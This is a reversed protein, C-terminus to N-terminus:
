EADCEGTGATEGAGPDWPFPRAQKIYLTATGPTAKDDFKFEVDMGYWDGDDGYVPMFRSHIADLAAGLAHTQTSDLVTTGADILTSHTIYTIPEGPMSYYQLYADPLVGLDPQVVENDESQVNVYFAPELGSTDFINQTIAVGNAEEQDFNPTTLLAMDCAHQDISYYGREEYARPNWINLWAEKIAWEVSEDEGSPVDLDGTQSNYLGAGTFTGLDEANTSSRFRAHNSDPFMGTFKGTVAALLAPDLTGARMLDQFALLRSQREEPDAWGPEAEMATLTDWLGNQTMFQDYYYFPIVFGDQMPVIDQGIDYLAAYNTGKSGFRTLGREIEATLDADDSVIDAVDLLRTETLDAPPVVVPAPKHGEWWADAEAETVEEIQYDNPGVTLRVWKGELARLTPDDLAGKLGMNPTNRNVSLVNIHSLPTQFESTIIGATISIDIPVADLVVLERYPVYEAEVEGATHFELQGTTEGINYPQYVVGAFLQDTTLVKVDSPLDPLLAEMATSTPHFYLRDGFYSHDRVLRYGTAIQEASATDYPSLEYVFTDAGDYHTVAALLFRRDPSYYETSNFTSLDSVPPLGHGSLFASAYDWHIPYCRSNVFYLADADSQDIITKISEAGAISADLPASALATFDDWCGLESSSDISTSGAPLVCEWDRATDTPKGHCALLGLLAPYLRTM